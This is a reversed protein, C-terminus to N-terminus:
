FVIFSIFEWMFPINRNQKCSFANIVKSISAKANNGLIEKATSGIDTQSPHESSVCSLEEHQVEM